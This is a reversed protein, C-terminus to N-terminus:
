KKDRCRIIKFTRIDFARMPIAVTGSGFDEGDTWEMLNTEVVRARSDAPEVQATTGCGLQEVLRIVLCDEKEAKKLVELSVGAGSVRVPVKADGQRYGAFVAPPQNLQGAESMVDSDTLGGCHPLLSYTFQHMGLDADADPYTPARLLNLDLVNHLVKYGYKCDNLLAVGYLKGSLDVYKHAAVEFRAMDWSVNRHTNRQTYGYQIDFSAQDTRISTPFAARLMRHCEQWNVRTVFDLRKSNAALYIEQTIGSQGVALTFRVGQRVPGNSIWECAVGRATDIVQNEYYIDIDWADWSHPRDEYLTLVNGAEGEALVERGAEKDFARLIQGDASLEYRILSNELVLGAGAKPKRLAGGKRLTVLGQPPLAVAAVAVGDAEAQVPVANGDSDTLQCSWGDPLVVPQTFPTNLTNVVVLSQGDEEFMRGAAADQLKRCAELAEAHEQETVEYVKHISSGPLIDHFQNLLLSKWIRDLAERPYDGMDGCSHLYETERLRQELLRNGRKTRGQTTLTGRHLELYLEGIWVPLKSASPAIREFFDDARGFKVHPVGELDAQRQGREIMAATPGGGGDGIGFLVMMDDLVDKEKFNQEAKIMAGPLLQSNYTNEPPFHTLLETGDIGRWLFTTYPFNNYQSWSLKQTLFYDIGARKMIQPMAASYGFVDPIWLNRVDVGFEDMFFNKGHLVQRVMSEGSIINCDAEVWMGGQLEWRGGKVAKRIKKYLEPYHDKVMKYHAPQSAGFVYDDYQEILALQSSFTRASKRITERVPWLWGTDIHAHGVAHATVASANAKREFLPALQARVKSANRADDAFSDIGDSLAKLIRVARVSDEPLQKLMNLFLGYDLWLQYLAEDFVCLRIRNVTGRFSGHREPSGRPPDNDQSIGFLQNAAAEVWLEVKEGGKAKDFLPFSDRMFGAMFVSGNTLGQLPLGDKSFVMAEGNFDLHAVVKRGAWKAPVKGKLLFWASEWADGWKGGEEIAAYEGDLRDAFPVPDVSHRYEARMLVHDSLVRKGVRENFQEIRKIYVPRRKDCIM